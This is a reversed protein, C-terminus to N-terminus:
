HRLAMLAFFAVLIWPLALAAMRTMSTPAREVDRRDLDSLQM